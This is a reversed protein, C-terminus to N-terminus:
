PRTRRVGESSEAANVDPSTPRRLVESLESNRREHRRRIWFALILGLFILGFLLPKSVQQLYSEMALLGKEFSGIM